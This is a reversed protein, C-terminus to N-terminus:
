NSRVPDCAITQETQGNWGTLIRIRIAKEIQGRSIQHDFVTFCPMKQPVEVRKLAANGLHWLIRNQLVLGQPGHLLNLVRETFVIKGCDGLTSCNSAFDKAVLPEVFAGVQILFAIHKAFIVELQPSDSM